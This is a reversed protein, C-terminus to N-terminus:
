ALMVHYWRTHSSTKFSGLLGLIDCLLCHQLLCLMLQFDEWGCVSTACLFFFISKRSPMIWSNHQEQASTLVDQPLHGHHQHLYKRQNLFQFRRSSVWHSAHNRNSNHMSALLKGGQCRWQHCKKLEPLHQQLAVTMPVAHGQKMVENLPLRPAYGGQPSYCRARPTLRLRSTM